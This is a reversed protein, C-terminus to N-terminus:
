AEKKKAIAQAVNGVGQSVDGVAKVILEASFSSKKETDNFENTNDLFLDQIIGEFEFHERM